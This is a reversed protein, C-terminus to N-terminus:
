LHQSYFKLCAMKTIQHLTPIDSLEYVLGITSPAASGLIRDWVERRSNFEDEDSEKPPDTNDWYAFDQLHSHLTKVKELGYFILYPRYNDKHDFIIVVSASINELDNLGSAISKQIIHYLEYSTIKEGKWDIIEKFLDSAWETYRRRLRHLYEMLSKMEGNWKGAYYIKTSM